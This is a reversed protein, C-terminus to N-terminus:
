SSFILPRLNRHFNLSDRKIKVQFNWFINKYNFTLLLKEDYSRFHFLPHWNNNSFYVSNFLPDRFFQGDPSFCKPHTSGMLFKLVPHEIVAIVPWFTYWFWFHELVHTGLVRGVKWWVSEDCDYRLQTLCVKCCQSACVGRVVVYTSLQVVCLTVPTMSIRLFKPYSPSLYKLFVCVTM